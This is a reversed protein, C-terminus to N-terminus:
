LDNEIIAAHSTATTRNLFAVRSAAKAKDTFEGMSLIHEGLKQSYTYTFDNVGYAKLFAMFKDASGKDQYRYVVRYVTAAPAIVLPKISGGALTGATVVVDQVDSRAMKQRPEFVAAVRIPAYTDSSAIQLAPESKVPVAQVVPESKKAAVRGSDDHNGAVLNRTVPAQRAAFVEPKDGYSGSYVARGTVVPAVISAKAVETKVNLEALQTRATNTIETKAAVLEAQIVNAERTKTAAEPAPAPQTISALGLSVKTHLRGLDDALKRDVEAIRTATRAQLNGKAGSLESELRLIEREAAPTPGSAVTPAPINIPTNILSSSVEALRSAEGKLKEIRNQEVAIRANFPAEAITIQGELQKIRESLQVIESRIPSVSQILSTRTEELAQESSAIEDAVRREADANALAVTIRQKELQQSEKSHAAVAAQAATERSLADSHKKGSIESQYRQELGAAERAADAEIMSKQRQAEAKLQEAELESKLRVRDSDSQANRIATQYKQDLEGLKQNAEIEARMLKRDRDNEIMSQQVSQNASEEALRAQSAHTASAYDTMRQSEDDSASLRGNRAELQSVGIASQLAQRQEELQELEREFKQVKRSYLIQQETYRQSGMSDLLRDDYQSQPQVTGVEVVNRGFCGTLCIASALLTLVFPIRM